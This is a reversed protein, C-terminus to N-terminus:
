VSRIQVPSGTSLSYQQAANGGNVAIEIYGASNVLACAKGHAVEEYYHVLPLPGANDPAFFCSPKILHKISEVTINTFANGFHDIYIVAGSVENDAISLDPWDITIWKKVVPGMEDPDVGKLLHASVTAFIDRGHFTSSVPKRFFTDNKIERVVVDAHERLAFSLVGNDPAIFQYTGTDAVIAKRKSGVGPDVVVTFVTNEPFFRYSAFLAFAAARIDGQPIEHTIDVIAASPYIGLIVGKMSAVFWDKTGFDTLLVIHPM